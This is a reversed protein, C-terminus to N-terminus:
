LLWGLALVALAALSVVPMFPWYPKGRQLLPRLGLALLKAEAYFLLVLLPPLLSAAAALAAVDGVALRFLVGVRKLSLLSLVAILGWKVAVAPWGAGGREHAAWADYLLVGALFLLWVELFERQAALRKLDSLTAVAFSGLLFALGFQQWLSLRLSLDLLRPPQSPLDPEVALLVAVPPFLRDLNGM